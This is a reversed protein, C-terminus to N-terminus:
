SLVKDLSLNRRWEGGLLNEERLSLLMFVSGLWPWRSKGIGRPSIAKTSNLQGRKIGVEL